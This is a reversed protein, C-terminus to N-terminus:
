DNGRALALTLGAGGMGVIFGAALVYGAYHPAFNAIVISAILLAGGAFSVRSRALSGSYMMAAGFMLSWIAAQAWDAFIRNACLMVVLSVAWSIMFVMGIHRDLLGRRERRSMRVGFYIMFATAVLILALAVWLLSPTGHQIVILQSVIDTGGGVAGWIIYPAGNLCTPQDVRSLIRDVMQLHDQAEVADM